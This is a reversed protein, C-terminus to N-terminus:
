AIFTGEKELCFAILIGKSFSDNSHERHLKVGALWIM